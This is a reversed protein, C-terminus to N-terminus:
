VTVRDTVSVSPLVVCSDFDISSQDGPSHREIPEMGLNPVVQQEAPSAQQVTKRLNQENQVAAKWQECTRAAAIALDLM